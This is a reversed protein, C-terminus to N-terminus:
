APASSSSVSRSGQGLRGRCIAQLRVEGSKQLSRSARLDRRLGESSDVTLRSPDRDCQAVYPTSSKRSDRTSSELDASDLRASTMTSSPPRDSNNDDCKQPVNRQAARRKRREIAIASSPVPSWREGSPVDDPVGSDGHNAPRREFEFLRM